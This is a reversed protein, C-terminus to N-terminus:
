GGVRGLAGARGARRVAGGLGAEGRVGARRGRGGLAARLLCACPWEGSGWKMTRGGGRVGRYSVVGWRGDVGDEAWGARVRRWRLRGWSGAGRRRAVGAETRRRLSQSGPSVGAEEKWSVEGFGGPDRGAGEEEGRQGGPAVQWKGPSLRWAGRPAADLVSM